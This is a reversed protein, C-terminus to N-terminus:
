VYPRWDHLSKTNEPNLFNLSNCISEIDHSIVTFGLANSAMQAAAEYNAGKLDDRHQDLWCWIETRSFM